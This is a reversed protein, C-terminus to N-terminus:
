AAAVVAREVRPCEVTEGDRKRGLGALRKLLHSAKRRRRRAGDPLVLSYVPAHNEQRLSNSSDCHRMQHFGGHSAIDQASLFSHASVSSYLRPALGHSEAWRAAGSEKARPQRISYFRCPAAAPMATVNINIRDSTKTKEPDVALDAEGIRHVDLSARLWTLGEAGLADTEAFLADSEFYTDQVHPWLSDVQPPSYPFLEPSLSRSRSGSRPTADTGFSRGREREFVAESQEHPSTPLQKGYFRGTAASAASPQFAVGSDPMKDVPFKNEVIRPSLSAGQYQLRSVADSTTAKTPQGPGTNARHDAQFSPWMPMGRDISQILLACAHKMDDELEEAVPQRDILPSAPRFYGPEDTFDFYRSRDTSNRDWALDASHSSIPTTASRPRISPTSTASAPLMTSARDRGRSFTFRQRMRLAKQSLKREM